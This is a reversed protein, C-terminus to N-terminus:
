TIDTKAVPSLTNIDSVPHLNVCCKIQVLLCHSVSKQVSKQMGLARTTKVLIEGLKIRTEITVEAGAIFNPAENGRVYEQMLTKVVEQPLVTALACLGNISALYVYSDEHQM